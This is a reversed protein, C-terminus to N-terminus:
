LELVASHFRSGGVKVKRVMARVHGWDRRCDIWVDRPRRVKVSVILERPFPTGHKHGVRPVAVRSWAGTVGRGSGQFYGGEISEDDRLACDGSVRPEVEALVGLGAEEDPWGV